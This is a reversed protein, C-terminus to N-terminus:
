AATPSTTDLECQGQKEEKWTDYSDGFPVKEQAFKLFCEYFYPAAGSEDAEKLTDCLRAQVAEGGLAFRQAAELVLDCVPTPDVPDQIRGCTLFYRSAGDALQVEVAVVDNMGGAECVVLRSHQESAATLVNGRFRAITRNCTEASVNDSRQRQEIM